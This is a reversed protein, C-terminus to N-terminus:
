AAHDDRGFMNLSRAGEVDVRRQAEAFLARTDYTARGNLHIVPLDWRELSRPSTEFGAMALLEAGRKRSVREPCPDPLPLIYASM